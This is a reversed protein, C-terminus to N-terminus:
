VNHFAGLRTHTYTHTNLSPCLQLILKASAVMQAGPGTLAQIEVGVSVGFATFACDSDAVFM